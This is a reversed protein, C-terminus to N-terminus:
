WSKEAQFKVFSLADPRKHDLPLLCQADRPSANENISVM